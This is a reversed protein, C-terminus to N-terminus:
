IKPISFGVILFPSFASNVKNSGLLFHVKSVSFMLDLDFYGNRRAIKLATDGKSDSFNLDAGAAILQQSLLMNNKEVVHMLVSWGEPQVNM